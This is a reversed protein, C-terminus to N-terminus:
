HHPRGPGGRGAGGRTYQRGSFRLGLPPNCISEAVEAPRFVCLSLFSEM